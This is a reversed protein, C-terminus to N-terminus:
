RRGRMCLKPLCSMTAVLVAIGSSILFIVTGHLWALTGLGAPEAAWTVLIPDEPMELGYVAAAARIAARYEKAEVSPPTVRLAARAGAVSVEGCTFDGWGECCDVGVAWFGPAQTARAGVVPAACYTRPWARHGVSSAGDVRAGEAFHLIGADSFAAPNSDPHVGSYERFFTARIWPQMIDYNVRGIVIGLILATLVSLFPRWVAYPRPMQPNDPAPPMAFFFLYILGMCALGWPGGPQTHYEYTFQFLLGVFFLLPAAWEVVDGPKTKM